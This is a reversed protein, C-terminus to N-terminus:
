TIRTPLSRQRRGNEDPSPTNRSAFSAVSRSKSQVPPAALRAPAEAPDDFEEPVEEEEFVFARRTSESQGLVPSHVVRPSRSIPRDDPHYYQHQQVANPLCDPLALLQEAVSPHQRFTPSSSTTEKGSDVEEAVENNNGGSNQLLKKLQELQVGGFVSTVDDLQDLHDDEDKLRDM